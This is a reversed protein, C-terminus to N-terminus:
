RIIVFFMFALVVVGATSAGIVVNVFRAALFFHDDTFM